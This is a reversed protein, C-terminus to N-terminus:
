PGTTDDAAIDECLPPDLGRESHLTIGHRALDSTNTFSPEVDISHGIWDADWEFSRVFGVWGGPTSSVEAYGLEPRDLIGVRVVRPPPVDFWPGRYSGTENALVIRARQRNDTQLM